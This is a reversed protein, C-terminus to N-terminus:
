KTIVLMGLVNLVSKGKIDEHESLILSLRFWRKNYFDYFICFHEINKPWWVFSCKTYKQHFVIRNPRYRYPDYPLFVPGMKRWSQSSKEQFTSSFSGRTKQYFSVNELKKHANGTEVKRSDYYLKGPPQANAPVCKSFWFSVFFKFM